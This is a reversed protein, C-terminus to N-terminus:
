HADTLTRGVINDSILVWKNTMVNLLQMPRRVHVGPTDGHQFQLLDQQFCMM